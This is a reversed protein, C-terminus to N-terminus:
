QTLRRIKRRWKRIIRKTIEGSSDLIILPEFMAMEYLSFPVLKGDENEWSGLRWIAKMGNREVRKGLVNDLESKEYKGLRKISALTDIVESVHVACDDPSEEKMMNWHEAGIKSDKRHRKGGGCIDCEFM